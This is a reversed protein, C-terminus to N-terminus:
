EGEHKVATISIFRPYYIKANVFASLNTSNVNYSIILKNESSLNPHLKANYSFVNNFDENVTTEYIKVFDSFEGYPTDSVSYVVKGSNTNEMAVLVYKNEFLGSEIYTVSLEASVGDKIPAVQDIEKTWDVGNYYTWENFNLFDEETVRSVILQRGNLDKYGYVYIFGDIDRNDMVGAGFYIIGGDSTQAMLPTNMYKANAYDFKHDVIDMEILGVNHVKFYTSFDKVLIPFVYLKDNIVLGDQIWLRSSEEVSTQDTVENSASIEGFLPQGDSSFLRIKGLGVLSDSYTDTIVIKIYQASQSNLSIEKTYAELDNGSAQNLDYTSVKDYDIGNESIYLDFSKVGYDANANYNWLYISGLDYTNKLDVIIEADLQNSLWMTGENLNTLLASPSNTITLGDGDLLNRARSGTYADPILVSKPEEESEDWEFSLTDDVHNLYGFSNNVFDFDTRRYDDNVNGIFTDSFIFGTYGHDQGIQDGGHDMDFTFIGDAGTWGNNKLFRNSLETEEKIIYGDGLIAKIDQIGVSEGTDEFILKIKKTMADGIDLLNEGQTLAQNNIVRNYRYGDISVEVSIENISYADDGQYNEILLSEIPYIANFELTIQHTKISSDSIILPYERDDVCKFNNTNSLVKSTLVDITQIPVGQGYTESFSYQCDLIDPETTIEETEEVGCAVLLYFATVILVMFKLRKM